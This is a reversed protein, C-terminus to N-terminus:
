LWIYIVSPSRYRNTYVIAYNVVCCQLTMLCVSSQTSLLQGQICRSWRASISYVDALRRTVKGLRQCHDQLGPSSECGQAEWLRELVCVAKSQIWVANVVLPECPSICVDLFHCECKVNL